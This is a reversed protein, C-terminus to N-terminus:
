AEAKREIPLRHDASKTGAMLLKRPRLLWVPARRTQLFISELAKNDILSKQWSDTVDHFIEAQRKAFDNAESGFIHFEGDVSSQRPVSKVAAAEVVHSLVGVGRKFGYIGDSVTKGKGVSSGGKVPQKSSKHKSKTKSSAM